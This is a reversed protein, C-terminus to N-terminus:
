LEVDTMMALYEIDATIKLKDLEDASRDRLMIWYKDGHQEITVLAMHSHTETEEGNSIIVPDCNDKFADASIEEASIFVNGNLRLNEIVTGDTLKISYIKEEQDM